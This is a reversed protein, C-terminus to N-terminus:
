GTPRINANHHFSNDPDYVAKLAALRDYKTPGYSARVRDDDHEAMFNVYSGASSAHVSLAKWFSRVWPRDAALLDGSPAAAVITLAFKAQRSGGFATDDEGAHRYAGGLPIMWVLSLPSTMQPVYETFVNVADDSLEDLYIGKEYAHIGWAFAEDFMQQLGVYPIPTVFEFLPPVAARIPSVVDAHEDASGWGAVLVAYGPVLHYQEPVFPAPPASLAVIIAGMDDPLTEVFERLFRLAEVGRDLGWFFLGLHGLPNVEHLRYEFSTVVGFNGGGGRLAWFLDAEDDASATVIRGDATVVEAALLNDCTLGARRTLWGLGGGLTLGGVGTHSITGGPVALGHEQTAADLDAWTAGGGCRVRRAHPEVTVNRMGSLDVMLGGDCVAFGAASHGGGRVSLELDHARAFEIAAAVDEANSCRTIVAPCRDIDGNWVSRAADYGPDGPLLVEGAFRSRLSGIATSLTLVM